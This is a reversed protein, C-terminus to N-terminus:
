EIVRIRGMRIRKVEGDLRTWTALVEGQRRIWRPLRSHGPSPGLDLAAGRTGDRGMWRAWTHGGEQWGVIAGRGEPSLVVTVQGNGRKRDVRGPPSFSDGADDSFAVQVRPKQEAATWWAVVVRSGDADVAPGNDPCGNFVWNDAHVRQPESWHGDRFHIAHIDRVVPTEYIITGVSDGTTRSRDRYVVIPGEATTAAATPCCECAVSDLAENPAIQGASDVTAAYLGVAGLWKADEEAGGPPPPLYRQSRADLWVLGLGGPVPFTSVFSHQGPIGDTHPVAPASWTVGGDRSLALHIRNAFPDSTGRHRVDWYAALLGPKVEAVGPLVASYSILDIGEAITSPEEWGRTGESALRFRYGSDPLPELWSLITKGAATVTAQPVVALSAFPPHVEILELNPGSPRCSALVLGLPILRRLM